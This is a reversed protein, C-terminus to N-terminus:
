QQLLTSQLVPSIRICIDKYKQLAPRRYLQFGHAPFGLEPEFGWRLHVGEEIPAASINGIAHLGLSASLNFDPLM